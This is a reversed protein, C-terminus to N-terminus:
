VTAPKWERHANHFQQAVKEMASERYTTYTMHVYVCIFHGHCVNLDITYPTSLPATWVASLPSAVRLTASGQEEAFTYTEPACYNKNTSQPWLRPM